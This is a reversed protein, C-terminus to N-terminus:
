KRERKSSQLKATRAKGITSSISLSINGIYETPLAAVMISFLVYFSLGNDITFTLHIFARM